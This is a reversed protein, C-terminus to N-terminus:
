FKLPTALPMTFPLSATTLSYFSDVADTIDNCNFTDTSLDYQRISSMNLSQPTTNNQVTAYSSDNTRILNTKIGEHPDNYTYAAGTCDDSQYYPTIGPSDVVYYGADSYVIAIFRGLTSSYVTFASGHGDPVDMTNGLIQGNADHLTAGGGGQSWNVGTELLGNCSQSASDIIRVGGTLTTRCAHIVGDSDPIAAMVVATTVGGVITAVLVAGLLIMKNKIFSLAKKM